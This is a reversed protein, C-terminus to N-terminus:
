DWRLTVDRGLFAGLRDAAQAAADRESPTWRHDPRLTVTVGDATTTRAFMGIDRGDAVVVGGGQRAWLGVRPLEPRSRPFGLDSYTLFAEDFVPVLYAAHRRATRAPVLPDFWLTHGEVEVAELEGALEALAARIQTLTLTCWRALDREGAPGHGAFFRRVLLTAAEPADLTDLPGRAVEEDVLAYTHEAGRPPGSCLLGRIEAVLLVHSLREGTVPLGPALGPGLLGQGLESRTPHGGGAVLALVAGVARDLSPGDLGLQRHRAAMGAEVKAGTLRQLWRLDEAPVLHWTPRLVHTRLVTGRRLEDLVAAYTRHRSRLGLSWAAMPADQAQMATLSRVVDGARPLPAGSLRQTALRRRVLWSRDRTPMPGDDEPARVPVM